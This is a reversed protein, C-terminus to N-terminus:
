PFFQHWVELVTDWLRWCPDLDLCHDGLVDSSSLGSGRTQPCLGKFATVHHCPRSLFIAEDWGCFCLGPTLIGPGSIGLPVTVEQYQLAGSVVSPWRAETWNM